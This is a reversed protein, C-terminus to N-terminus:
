KIHMLHQERDVLITLHYDEDDDVVVVGAAVEDVVAGVEEDVDEDVVAKPPPVNRDMSFEHRIRYPRTQQIFVNISQKVERWLPKDLKSSSKSKTVVQLKMQKM